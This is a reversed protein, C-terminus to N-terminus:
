GFIVIFNLISGQDLTTCHFLADQFYQHKLYTTSLVGDEFQLGNDNFVKKLAGRRHSKYSKNPIQPVILSFVNVVVVLMSAFFTIQLAIYM